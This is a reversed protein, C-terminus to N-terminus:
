AALEVLLRSYVRPRSSDVGSSAVFVDFWGSVLLVPVVLMFGLQFIYETSVVRAVVADIAALDMQKELFGRHVFLPNGIPEATVSAPPSGFAANTLSTPWGRCCSVTSGDPFSFERVVVLPKRDNSSM